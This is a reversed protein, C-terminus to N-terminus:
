PQVGLCGQRMVRAVSDTPPHHTMQDAPRVALALSVVFMCSLTQPLAHAAFLGACTRCRCGPGDMGARSLAIRYFRSARGRRVRRRLAPTIDTRRSPQTCRTPGREARALRHRRVPSHCVRRRRFVKAATGQDNLDSAAVPVGLAQVWAAAAYETDPEHTTARLSRSSRCWLYAGTTEARPMSHGLMAEAKGKM